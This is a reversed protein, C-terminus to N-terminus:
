RAEAPCWSLDASLATPSTASIGTHRTAIKRDVTGWVGPIAGIGVNGLGPHDTVILTSDPLDYRSVFAATSDSSASISVWLMGISSNVFPGNGHAQWDRAAERCAPCSPDFFYVLHCGQDVLDSLRSTDAEGPITTVRLQAVSDGTEAPPTPGAAPRPPEDGIGILQWGLIALLVLTIGVKLTSVFTSTFSDYSM